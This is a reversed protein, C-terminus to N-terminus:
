SEKGHCTICDTNIPKYLTMMKENKEITKHCAGCRVYQHAGTLEFESDRNHNFKEALWDTTVHCRSCDTPEDDKKQFQSYHPDAHCKSCATTLGSLEIFGATSKQHCRGCTLKAHSGTLPFDTTNHDFEITQWGTEEHCYACKNRNVPTNKKQLYRDLDSGHPNKHCETCELTSFGFRASKGPESQQPIHCKNCAVALHAGRVPFRTRNHEELTFRAPLFGEVTHCDKCEGQEERHKFQGAHYDAHCDSCSLFHEIKKTTDNKHCKECSVTKHLGELPFRTLSHDFAVFSGRKWGETSHCIKCDKGLRGDHYDRHCDTCKKFDLPKYVRFRDQESGKEYHCKGCDVDRHRGTLQFRFNNHDPYTVADWKEFTHCRLCDSGLQGRHEDSHCSLCTQSLGLYTGDPNLNESLLVLSDSIFAKNHCLNCAIRSHTGELLYGTQRHDFHEKGDEWYILNFERGQHEVHCDSCDELSNLGHYGTKNEISHKILQHCKLCNISLEKRERDHCTTCNTLGELHAHSQHLPGPSLQAISRTGWSFMILMFIFGNRM